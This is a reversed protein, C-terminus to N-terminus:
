QVFRETVDIEPCSMTEVYEVSVIRPAAQTNIEIIVASITNFDILRFLQGDTNYVGGKKLM